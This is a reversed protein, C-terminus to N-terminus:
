LDVFGVLWEQLSSRDSDKLLLRETNLSTEMWEKIKALAERFNHLSFVTCRTTQPWNRRFSPWAQILAIELDKPLSELNWRYPFPSSQYYLVCDLYKQREKGSLEWGEQAEGIDDSTINRPLM